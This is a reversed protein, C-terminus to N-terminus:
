FFNGGGVGAGRKWKHLRERMKEGKKKTKEDGRLLLFQRRVETGGCKGVCNWSKVGRNWGKSV